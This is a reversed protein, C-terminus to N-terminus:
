HGIMGIVGIMGDPMLSDLPCGEHLHHLADDIHEPRWPAMGSLGVSRRRLRSGDHRIRFRAGDFSRSPKWFQVNESRKRHYRLWQPLARMFCIIRGAAWDEVCIALSQRVRIITVEPCFLPSHIVTPRLFRIGVYLFLRVTYRRKVTLVSHVEALVKHESHLEESSGIGM